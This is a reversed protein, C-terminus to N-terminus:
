SKVSPKEDKLAPLPSLTIENVKKLRKEVRNVSFTKTCDVLIYAM